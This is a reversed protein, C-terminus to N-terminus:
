ESRQQTDQHSRAARGGGGPFLAHETPAIREVDLAQGGAPQFSRQFIKRRRCAGAGHLPQVIEVERRGIGHRAQTDVALTRHVVGATDVAVGTAIVVVSAKLSCLL